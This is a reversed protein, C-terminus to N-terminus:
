PNFTRQKGCVADTPSWGSAMRYKITQYKTGSLESWRQITETRDGIALTETRPRHSPNVVDVPNWGARLRRFATQYNTGTEACWAKLSQTRNGVTLTVPEKM